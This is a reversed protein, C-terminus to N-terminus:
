QNLYKFTADALLEVDEFRGEQTSGLVTVIVPHALGADFAVTLNGGAMNTYGTKSAFLGPISGVFDNTNKGTHKKDDSSIKITTYKTPELVDPYNVIMYNMLTNVDTASGYGGSTNTDIDLGTENLFFSQTLGLEKAKSNMKEIFDKRGLNYDSTDLTVAGIVSALSRAGDNSSTVLSFDLLDRMKWSESVVLGSDGEERLFDSRITINSNQPLLEVAVVATMLKTISALPLQVNENKAYLVKNTSLDYVYVARAKLKLDDFVESSKVQENIQTIQDKKDQSKQSVLFIMFVVGIFLAINFFHLTKSIKQEEM